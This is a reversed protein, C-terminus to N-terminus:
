EPLTIELHVRVAFYIQLTAQLGGTMILPQCTPAIKYAPIGVILLEAYYIQADATGDGIDYPSARAYETNAVV